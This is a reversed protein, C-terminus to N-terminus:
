LTYFLEDLISQASSYEGITILCFALSNLLTIQSEPSAEKNLVLTYASNYFQIAEWSSVLILLANGYRNALIALSDPPDNQTSISFAKDFYPLSQAYDGQQYLLLVSDKSEQAYM